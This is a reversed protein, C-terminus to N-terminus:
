FSGSLRPLAMEERERKGGGEGGMACCAAIGEIRLGRGGWLGMSLEKKKQDKKM